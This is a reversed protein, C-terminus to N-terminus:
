DHASTRSQTAIWGNTRLMDLAPHGILAAVGHLHAVAAVAIVPSGPGTLAYRSGGPGDFLIRERDLDVQCGLVGNWALTVLDGRQLRGVIRHNSIWWSAQGWDQWTRREVTYSRGTRWPTERWETHTVTSLASYAAITQRWVIERPALVVGIDGLPREGPFGRGLDIALQRADAWASSRVHETWKKLDKRQKRHSV